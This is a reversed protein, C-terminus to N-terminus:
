IKIGFERALRKVAEENNGYHSYSSYYATGDTATNNWSKTFGAIRGDRTRSVNYYEGSSDIMFEDNADSEESTKHCKCCECSGDCESVDEDIDEPMKGNLDYSAVYIFDDDVECLTDKSCDDAIIVCDYMGSIYNGTECRFAKECWISFDSGLTVIYEKDYGDWDEPEIEVQYIYTEEMNALEKIVDVADDYLGIFTAEECSGCIKEYMFEAIESIDKIFLRQM